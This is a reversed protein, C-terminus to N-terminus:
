HSGRSWSETHVCEFRITFLTILLISKTGGAIHGGGSELSPPLALKVGPCPLALRGAAEGEVTARSTM